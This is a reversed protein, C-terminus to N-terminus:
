RQVKGGLQFPELEELLLQRDWEIAEPIPYSTVSALVGDKFICYHNYCAQQELMLPMYKPLHTAVGVNDPHMIWAMDKWDLIGEATKVPTALPFDSDVEATYLYMGGFYDADVQWTVLGKFKVRLAASEIGTEEQIERIMSDRASEGEELKGGVGNWAGMWSPKERNLLLIQDNRRIFAINYKIM